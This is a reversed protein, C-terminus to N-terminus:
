PHTGRGPRLGPPVMPPPQDGGAGHSHRALHPLFRPTRAAYAGWEEGFHESMELEEAKSLRYYIVVLVPFMVLTPITPWQLLFGVMIALFGAYQPHRVWGYPGGVALRDDRAAQWLRRWAVAILAFGGGIFAYSALHFPSLHPDGQWGILESWLHGGNHTFSLESFRSGFYSTLFYITLPFGYMEAFLAVMFASFASMAKWDRKTAPHFVSLAFLIFVLTDIIMVAWLGYGYESM